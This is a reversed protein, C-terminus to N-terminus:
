SWTLPPSTAQHLPPIMCHHQWQLFSEGGTVSNASEGLDEEIEMLATDGAEELREELPVNKPTSVEMLTDASVLSPAWPVVALCNTTSSDTDDGLDEAATNRNWPWSAHNKLGSVLEPSISFSPGLQANVPKYLVLAREENLTSPPISEDMLSRLDEVANVKEEVPLLQEKVEIIPPLEANLRRIKTAPASLSFDAFDDDYVEDFDKRKLMGPIFNTM